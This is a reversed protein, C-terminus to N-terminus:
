PQTDKIAAFAIGKLYNADNALQVAMAGNVRSDPPCDECLHKLPPRKGANWNIVADPVRNAERGERKCRSCVFWYWSEGTTRNHDRDLKPRIGCCREPKLTEM